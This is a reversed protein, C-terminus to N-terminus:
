LEFDVAARDSTHSRVVAAARVHEPHVQYAALDDLTNYDAVLVVDWNTDFYAQNQAVRLAQIEPILAPLAGLAEAIEAFAASKGADDRASLKWSVVHRIM